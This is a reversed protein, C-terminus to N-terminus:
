KMMQWLVDMGISHVVGVFKVNQYVVNWTEDKVYLTMIFLNKLYLLRKYKGM